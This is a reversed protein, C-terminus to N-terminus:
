EEVAPNIAFCFQLQRWNRIGRHGPDALSGITETALVLAFAEDFALGAGTVSDGAMTWRRRGHQETKEDLPFGVERMRNLDRRITKLSVGFESALEEVTVGLRRASLQRLMRLQRDITGIDHKVPQM